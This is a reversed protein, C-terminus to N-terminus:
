AVPARSCHRIYAVEIEERPRVRYVIRFMEVITSRYGAFVGTMSAGLDPFRELLRLRKLVKSYVPDYIEDLDEQAQPLLIVRL